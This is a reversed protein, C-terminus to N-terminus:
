MNGKLQAHDKVEESLNVNIITERLVIWVFDDNQGAKPHLRSVSCPKYPCLSAEALSLIPTKHSSILAMTRQAM